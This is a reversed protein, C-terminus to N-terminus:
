GAGDRYRIRGRDWRVDLLDWDAGEGLAGIARRLHGWKRGEPLEGPLGQRPTRGFFVLRRDELFLRTGPEDISAARALEADILVPGLFRSEERTLHAGLSVAVSLADLHREEVLSDGPRLDYLAGDNPGVVPLFGAASEPPTPWLGPLVIGDAAVVRFRGDRTRVSAAPRRLEVEFALGDPWLVREGVVARVFPAAEIREALARRAERDLSSIPGYEALRAALWASWGEPVWDGGLEGGVEIAVRRTDVRASESALFHGFLERGALAVLAGGLLLTVWM